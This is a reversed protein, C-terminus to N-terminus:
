GQPMGVPHHTQRADLTASGHRQHPCDAVMGAATSGIVDVLLHQILHSLPEGPLIRDDPSGITTEGVRTEHCMEGPQAPGPTHADGPTNPDLAIPLAAALHIAPMPWSSCCAEPMMDVQGCLPITRDRHRHSPAMLALFIPEHDTIFRRIHLGTFRIPPTEIDVLLEQIVVRITKLELRRQNARRRRQLAPTQHQGDRRPLQDYLARFDTLLALTTPNIRM